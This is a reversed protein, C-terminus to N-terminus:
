GSKLQPTNNSDAWLEDLSFQASDLKITLCLTLIFFHSFYGFSVRVMSLEEGTLAVILLFRFM